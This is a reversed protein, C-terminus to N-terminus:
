LNLKKEIQSLLVKASPYLLRKKKEQKKNCIQVQINIYKLTSQIHIM